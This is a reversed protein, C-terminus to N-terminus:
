GIVLQGAVVVDVVEVASLLSLLGKFGWVVISRRSFFDHDLDTSRSSSEKPSYKVYRGSELRGVGGGDRRFQKIFEGFGSSSPSNKFGL